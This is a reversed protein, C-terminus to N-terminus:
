VNVTGYNLAAKKCSSRPMGVCFEETRGLAQFETRELRSARGSNSVNIGLHNLGMCVHCLMLGEFQQCKILGFCIKSCKFNISARRSLRGITDKFKLDKGQFFFLADGTSARTM